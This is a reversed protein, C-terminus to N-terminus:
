IRGRQHRLKGATALDVTTESMIRQVEAAAEVNTPERGLQKRLVNWITDPNDNRWTTTTKFM